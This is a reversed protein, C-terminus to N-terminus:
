LMQVRRAVAALARARQSDIRAPVRTLAVRHAAQAAEFRRPAPPTARRGSGNRISHLRAPSEGCQVRRRTEGTARARRAAAFSSAGPPPRAPTAAAPAETAPVPGPTRGRRRRGQPADTEGRPPGGRRGEQRRHPWAHLGGAPGAEPAPQVQDSHAPAPHGAGRSVAARHHARARQWLLRSIGHGPSPDSEAPSLGRAGSPLGCLPSGPRAPAQTRSPAHVRFSGAPGGIRGTGPVLVSIGGRLGPPALRHRPAASGCTAGSGPGTRTAGAIPLSLTTSRPEHTDSAISRPEDVIPSLTSRYFILLSTACKGVIM